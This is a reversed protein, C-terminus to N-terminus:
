RRPRRPTPASGPRPGPGDAAAAPVREALARATSAPDAHVFTAPILASERWGGDGDLVILATARDRAARRDAQLDADRGDPDRPRATPTRLPGRRALQDSRVVVMSRDHPGTRLGSLPDALIPFGTARALAALAGPLAPDDDPGAVILGREVGALAAM